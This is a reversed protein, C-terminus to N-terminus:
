FGVEDCGPSGPTSPMLAYSMSGTELQFGFSDPAGLQVLHENGAENLVRAVQFAQRASVIDCRGRGSPAGFDDLDGLGFAAPDVPVAGEPAFDGPGFWLLHEPPIWEIWDGSEWSSDDLVSELAMLNRAIGDLAKREPSPEYFQSEEQDGFWGISTVTITEADTAIIFTFACAGHGPPESDPLPVPRYEGSSQLYPSELITSRVHDLGSGSLSRMHWAWSVEAQGTFVHAVSGNGFILTTPSQFPGTVDCAFEFSLLPDADGVSPLTSLWPDSGDGDALWGRRGRIDIAEHWTFGDADSPGSVIQVVDGRVLGAVLESDTGPAARMRLEDAVVMM